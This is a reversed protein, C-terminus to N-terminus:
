KVELDTSIVEGLSIVLIDKGPECEVEKGFLKIFEDDVKCLDIAKIKCNLHWRRNYPYFHVEDFHKTGTVLYKDNPDCQCIRSAWHDSFARYERKKEGNIIEIAHVKRLPIKLVKEDNM